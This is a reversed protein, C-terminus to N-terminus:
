NEKNLEVRTGAEGSKLLRFNTITDSNAVVEIYTITSDLFDLEALTAPRESSGGHAGDDVQFFDLLRHFEGPTLLPLERKLCFLPLFEDERREGADAGFEAWGRVVGEDCHHLLGSAFHANSRRVWRVSFRFGHRVKPDLECSSM